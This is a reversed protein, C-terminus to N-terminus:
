LSPSFYAMLARYDVFDTSGRTFKSLLWRLQKMPVPSVHSVLVRQVDRAKIYGRRHPDANTFAKTVTPWERRIRRALGGETSPQEEVSNSSLLDRPQVRKMSSPTPTTDGKSRELSRLLEKFNVMRSHAKLGVRKIVKRLVEKETAVGLRTFVMRAEAETVYGDKDVDITMFAGHVTRGQERLLRKMGDLLAQEPTPGQPLQYRFENKYKVALITLDTEDEGEFHQAQPIHEEGPVQKVENVPFPAMESSAAGDRQPLPPHPSQMCHWRERALENPSLTKQRANGTEQCRVQEGHTQASYEEYGSCGAGRRSPREEDLGGVNRNLRTTASKPRVPRSGTLAPEAGTRASDFPQAVRRRVSSASSPRAKSRSLTNAASAPLYVQRDATLNGNSHSISRQSARGASAPRRTGSSAPRSHSPSPAHIAASSPRVEFDIERTQVGKQLETRIHARQLAEHRVANTVPVEAKPPSPLPAGPASGMEQQQQWALMTRPEPRQPGGNHASTGQVVFEVGQLQAPPKNGMRFGHKADM